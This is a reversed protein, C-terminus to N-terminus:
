SIKSKKPNNKDFSTNVNTIRSIRINFSLDKETENREHNRELQKNKKCQKSPNPFETSSECYRVSYQM